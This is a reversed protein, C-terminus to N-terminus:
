CREILLDDGGHLDVDVSGCSPCSLAWGAELPSEAGCAACHVRAPVVVVEVPMAGEGTAVLTHATRFAELAATQRAGVRVRLGGGPPGGAPSM